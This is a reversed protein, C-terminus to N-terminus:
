ASPYQHSPTVFAARPKGGLKIGASVDLGDSDVPVPVARVGSARLAHHVLWYGPDEVWASDGDNLLARTSLDLAQQSGSVILVQSAECRAGRSTRVYHAIVERLQPLGALDGYQLDAVRTRRAQRSALRSWIDLPFSQLDPQGVQFPGLTAASREYRPLDAAHISIRREGTQAIATQPRPKLSAAIYTGSGVKTEFYGEAHLQAYANLVPLRSVRLERALERTSPVEQGARLEGRLIRSRFSGYIQEYIPRASRRDVSILFSTTM